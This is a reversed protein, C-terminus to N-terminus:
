TFPPMSNPVSALSTAKTKFYFNLNPEQYFPITQINKAARALMIFAFVIPLELKKQLFDQTFGQGKESNIQPRFKKSNKGRGGGSRRRLFFTSWIVLFGRSQMSVWFPAPIRNNRSENWSCRYRKWKITEPPLLQNDWLHFTTARIGWNWDVLLCNMDLSSKPLFAPSLFTPKNLQYSEKKINM